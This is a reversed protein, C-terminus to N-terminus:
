QCVTAMKKESQQQQKLRHTNKGHGFKLSPLLSLSWVFVLWIHSDSITVGTQSEWCEQRNIDERDDEKVYISRELEKERKNKM